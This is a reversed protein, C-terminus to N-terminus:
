QNEFLHPNKKIFERVSIFISEQDGIQQLVKYNSFLFEAFKSQMNTMPKLGSQKVWELYANTHEM